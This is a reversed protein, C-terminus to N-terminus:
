AAIYSGIMGQLHGYWWFMKERPRNVFQSLTVWALRFGILGFVAPVIAVRMGAVSILGVNQLLAPRFVGFVVLAASAVMTLGGVSWDLLKAKGGQPLDKLYLVRYAAFSAYFSFVAVLALFLVPRYLAMPLATAAVVAMAWFYVKGWLRHAAGGKATLMAVPALIFSTFGASIHMGLFVKMWLPDHM